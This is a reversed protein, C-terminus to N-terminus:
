VAMPELLRFQTAEELVEPPLTQAYAVFQTQSFGKKDAKGARLLLAAAADLEDESLEPRTISIVTRLDTRGLTGDGDVDLIRFVHGVKGEAPAQRWWKVAALFGAFDLQQDRRGSEAALLRLFRRLLLSPNDATDHITDLVIHGSEDPDLQKFRLYVKKVEPLSVAPLVLPNTPIGLNRSLCERCSKRQSKSAHHFFWAPSGAMSAEGDLAAEAQSVSVGNHAGSGELGGGGAGRPGRRPNESSAGSGM